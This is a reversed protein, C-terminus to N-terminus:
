TACVEELSARIAGSFLAVGTLPQIETRDLAIGHALIKGM